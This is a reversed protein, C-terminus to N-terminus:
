SKMMTVGASEYSSTTSRLAADEEAHRQEEITLHTDAVLSDLDGEVLLERLGCELGCPLM